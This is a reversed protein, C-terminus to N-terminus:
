NQETQLRVGQRAAELNLPTYGAARAAAAFGALRGPADAVAMGVDGGGAGCPKYILGEAAALRELALHPASYIGLNAARDLRKLARIYGILGDVAPHRFMRESCDGLARLATRDGGKLYEAFVELRRRTRAGRGVWVFCRNRLADPCSHARGDQFRLCGGFFSAAVDAGSGHGGQAHRHAALAQSFEPAGGSLASFAAQLAVCLAASSGLGLKTGSSYFAETNMTVSLPVARAEPMARLVQWPLVAAADVPRTDPLGDYEVTTAPLGRARFQWSVSNRLSCRAQRDVALVAAPAGELVAYEGWLLVKGPAAASIM